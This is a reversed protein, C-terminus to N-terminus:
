PMARAGPLFRVAFTLSAGTECPYVDGTRSDLRNIKAERMNPAELKSNAASVALTDTPAVTSDFFLQLNLDGPDAVRAKPLISGDLLTSAVAEAVNIMLQPPADGVTDYTRLRFLPSNADPTLRM